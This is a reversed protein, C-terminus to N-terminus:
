AANEVNRKINELSEAAETDIAQVIKETVPKPRAPNILTRTFKTRGEISEVDYRVIITGTFPTHTEGIWLRAEQFETVTWNLEAEGSKTHWLERFTDGLKLPRDESEIHHSAYIWEPWSNPNSVYDLVVGPAADIFIEHSREFEYTETM